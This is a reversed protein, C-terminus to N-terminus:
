LWKSWHRFPFFRSRIGFWWFPLGNSECYLDCVEDEGNDVLHVYSYM